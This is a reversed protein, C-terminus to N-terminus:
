LVKYITSELHLGQFDVMEYSISVGGKGDSQIYAAKITHKARRGPAEWLFCYEGISFKLKIDMAEFNIIL